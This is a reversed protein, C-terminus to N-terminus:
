SPLSCTLINLQHFTKHYLSLWDKASSFIHGPLPKLLSGLIAVTFYELYCCISFHLDKAVKESYHRASFIKQTLCLCFRMHRALVGPFSGDATTPLDTILNQNELNKNKILHGTVARNKLWGNMKESSAVFSKRAHFKKGSTKILM